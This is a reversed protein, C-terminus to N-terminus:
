EKAALMQPRLQTTKIKKLLQNSTLRLKFNNLVSMM